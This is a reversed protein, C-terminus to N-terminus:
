GDPEPLDRADFSGSLYQQGQASIEYVGRGIADKKVFGAKELKILRTNFYERRFTMRDDESIRTPSRPGEEKLFELLRDDAMVMWDAPLRLVM